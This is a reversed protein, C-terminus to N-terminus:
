KAIALKTAAFMSIPMLPRLLIGFYNLAHYQKTLSWCVKRIIQFGVSQTPQYSLTQQVKISIFEQQGTANLKPWCQAMEYIPKCKNMKNSDKTSMIFQCFEVCNIVYVWRKHKHGMLRIPSMSTPSKINTVSKLHQHCFRQRSKENHQRNNWHILDTVLMKVKDGVCKTELM